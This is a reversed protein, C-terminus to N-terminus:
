AFRKGFVSFVLSFVSCREIALILIKKSQPNLKISGNVFRKNLFSVRVDSRCEAYSEGGYRDDRDSVLGAMM